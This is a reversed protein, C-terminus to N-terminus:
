EDHELLYTKDIVKFQCEGNVEKFVLGERRQGNYGKQTPVRAELELPNAAIDRLIGYGVVPVHKAGIAQALGEVQRPPVRRQKEVDWAGFVFFDHENVPFKERNQNINHGVLEGQVAVSKGLRSLQAGLGLRNATRWLPSTSEEKLEQNKSCVGFRGNEFVNKGDAGPLLACAPHTKLVFFVTMSQGDMKTTEQFVKNGWGEFIKNSSTSQIRQIDTKQIIAVPFQGLARADFPPPKEFKTVGLLDEFCAETKLWETTAPKGHFDTHTNLANRIEPFEKLPFILGQSIINPNPNETQVRFGLQTNFTFFRKEFKKFRDDTAPLFADIEFFVVIDGVKFTGTQVVVRWGGVTAFSKTKNTSSIPEIASIPRVTVLRRPM